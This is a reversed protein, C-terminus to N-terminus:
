KWKAQLEKQRVMVSAVLTGVVLSVLTAVLLAYSFEHDDLTDYMRSPMVRTYFLDMGYAFVLSTSELRSPTTVIGRLASIQTDSFIVSIM